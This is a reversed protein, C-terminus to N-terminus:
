FATLTLDLTRSEADRLNLRTARSTLQELLEPNSEEGPELDDVAVALYGAPRLFRVQYRGDQDARATMLYPSRSRKEPDVAFVIVVADTVPAGSADTVRGSLEPHKQTLVIEIDDVDARFDIPTDTVDTGDVIVTRTQWEGPFAMAQLLRRGSIGTLEFTWDARAGPPSSYFSPEGPEDPTSFVRVQEPRLGPPPAGTDFRIRGRATAGKTIVLELGSVDRGNVVVDARAPSADPRDIGRAEIIYSGPALNAVSFSGDPKALTTGERGFTSDGRSVERAIVITHAASSGDANRVIGSVSATQARALAFAIGSVEEGAKIAIRQADGRLATGPYYTPVYGVSTGALDHSVNPTATLYYEGPLLGFVRFEGRDDIQAGAVQVPERRGKSFALRSVALHAGIAPEGAEDVVRGTIVGGPPLAFDISNLIQSDALAIARGSSYTRRQGYHVEGFGGKSATLSYRGEPLQAFEYRGDEDTMVSRSENSLARVVARRLPQGTDSRVVRGRIVGTGTARPDRTRQSPSTTGPAGGPPQAPATTTTSQQADFPGGRAPFPATVLVAAIFLALRMVRM